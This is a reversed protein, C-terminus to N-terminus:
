KKKVALLNERVAAEDRLGVRFYVAPDGSWDESFSYRIRVVDPALENETERLLAEMQNQDVFARATIM